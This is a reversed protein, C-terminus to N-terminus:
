VRRFILIRHDGLCSFAPCAAIRRDTREFIRLWKAPLGCVFSPPVLIGIGAATVLRFVPSFSNALEKVSPYYIRLGLSSAAWGKWRRLAKPFDGRLLYWVTEWLCFRGMVCIALYGGPAIMTALPERVESLDEVCNLAGFMSIAGELAMSLSGADEIRHVRADVGRTTAIRVMEASADIGTVRVGHRQFRVADEGTGCGLDLVHDGTRLLPQVFRWVAERQLRGANSEDWLKHYRNAIQDFPAAQSTM